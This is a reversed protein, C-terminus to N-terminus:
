ATVKTSTTTYPNDCFGEKDMKRLLLHAIMSVVAFTAERGKVTLPLM